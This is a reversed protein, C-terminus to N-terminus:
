RTTAPASLASVLRPNTSSPRVKSRLLASVERELRCSFLRAGGPLLHHSDAFDRDAIWTRADIVPVGFQRRLHDLFSQIQRKAGQSYWSRFQQGEPMLVLAGAIGELRALSLLDRLARCAPGGLRFKTLYSSYEQHALATARRRQAVTLPPLPMPAWGSDGMGAFREIRARQPLWEPALYNLLNFREFYCPVSVTQWWSPRSGDDTFGYKRVPEVEDARLRNAPLHDAEWPRAHKGGLLPPLVE